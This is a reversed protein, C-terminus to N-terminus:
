REVASALAGIGLHPAVALDVGRLDDDVAAKLREAAVLGRDVVHDRFAALVGGRKRQRQGYRDTASAERHCQGLGAERPRGRSAHAHSQRLRDGDRDLAALVLALGDCIVVHCPAPGLEVARVALEPRDREVLDFGLADGGRRDHYLVARELPWAEDEAGSQRRKVSAAGRRGITTKTIGPRTGPM